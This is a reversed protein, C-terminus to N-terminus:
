NGIVDIASYSLLLLFVRHPFSVSSPHHNRQQGASSLSNEAVGCFFPCDFGRRGPLPLASKKLHPLVLRKENATKFANHVDLGFRASQVGGLNDTGTRYVKVELGSGLAALATTDYGRGVAILHEGGPGARSGM